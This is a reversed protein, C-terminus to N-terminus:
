CMWLTHYLHLQHTQALAATQSQAQISQSPASPRHAQSCVLMCSVCPVARMSEFSRCLASVAIPGSCSCGSRFAQNADKGETACWASSSPHQYDECAYAYQRPVTNLSKLDSVQCTYRPDTKRLVAHGYGPVVKGSKLTKNAFEKVEDASPDDGLQMAYCQNVRTVCSSLTEATSYSSTLKKHQPFLVPPSNSPQELEVKLYISASSCRCARCVCLM